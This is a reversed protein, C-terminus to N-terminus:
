SCPWGTLCRLGVSPLPRSPQSPLRERTLGCRCSRKGGPTVHCPGEACAVPGAPLLRPIVPRPHRSRLRLPPSAGETVPQRESGREAIKRGGSRVLGGAVPFVRSLDTRAPDQPMKLEAERRRWQQCGATASAATGRSSSGMESAKWAGARRGTFLSPGMRTGDAPSRSSYVDRPTVPSLSVRLM